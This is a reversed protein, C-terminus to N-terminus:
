LNEWEDDTFYPLGADARAKRRAHEEMRRCTEEREHVRRAKREARMQRSLKWAERHCQKEYAAQEREEIPRNKGGRKRGFPAPKGAAKLAALWRARGAKM